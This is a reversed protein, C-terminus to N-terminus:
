TLVQKNILTSNGELTPIQDFDRSPLYKRILDYWTKYTMDGRLTNLAYYSFAGHYKGGILADASTQNESCASFVVWKLDEYWRRKIRLYEKREFKPPMFRSQKFSRTSGGSFCSDLLLCVTVGDPIKQLMSNMKDDILVGDYLRLAEDYGDLEDGSYDEVYTGHGSYHIYLVDGPVSNAIAYEVQNVFNEVTVQKDTFKRIQFDYLVSEALLIDNICGRLDSNWGPYNNIGFLLAVKKAHSWTPLEVTSGFLKKLWKFCMM